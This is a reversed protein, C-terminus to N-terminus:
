HRHEEGSAHHRGCSRCLPIGYARSLQAESARAKAVREARCHACESCTGVPMLWLAWGTALLTAALISIMGEAPM